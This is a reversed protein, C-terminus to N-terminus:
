AELLMHMVYVLDAEEIDRLRVRENEAEITRTIMANLDAVKSELKALKAKRVAQAKERRAITARAVSAGMQDAYERERKAIDALLKAVGDNTKAIEKRAEVVVPPVVVVPEETERRHTKKGWPHWFPGAVLVTPTSSATAAVGSVIAGQSVLAGSTDHTVALGSRASVGAIVAGAGTLVGTSAHVTIHTAVGAVTAGPGTLAGTASFARFRVSTGAITSGPGVLAGVANFGTFRVSAGAITSGQGTLAGSTTHPHVAVGAIVAGPGTLAGTTTHTVPGTGSLNLQLLTLLSV